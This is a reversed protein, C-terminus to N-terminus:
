RLPRAASEPATRCAPGPGVSVRHRWGAVPRASCQRHPGDADSLLAGRVAGQDSVWFAAPEDVPYARLDDAAADMLCALRDLLDDVEDVTAYVLFVSEQVTIAEARLVRHLRQLRRPHAIDYAILYWGPHQMPNARYRNLITCV